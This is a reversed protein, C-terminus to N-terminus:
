NSVLGTAGADSSKDGYECYVAVLGQVSGISDVIFGRALRGLILESGMKEVM